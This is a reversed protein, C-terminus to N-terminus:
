TKISSNEFSIQVFSSDQFWVSGSSHKSGTTLPSLPKALKLWSESTSAWSSQILPVHERVLGWVKQVALVRTFGGTQLSLRTMSSQGRLFQDSLLQSETAVFHSSALQPWSLICFWFDCFDTLLDNLTKDPRRCTWPSLHVKISIICLPSQCLKCQHIEPELAQHRWWRCPVWFWPCWGRDPSPIYACKKWASQVCRLILIRFAASVEVCSAFSWLASRALSLSNADIQLM